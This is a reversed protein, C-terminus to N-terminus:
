VIENDIGEINEIFDELNEVIGTITDLEAYVSETVSTDSGTKIITAKAKVPSTSYLDIDTIEIPLYTNNLVQPLLRTKEKDIQWIYFENLNVYVWQGVKYPCEPFINLLGKYVQELGVSNKSLNGIIVDALKDPNKCLLVLKLMTKLEDATIKVNFSKMIINKIIKFQKFAIGFLTGHSYRIM